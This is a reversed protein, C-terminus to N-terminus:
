EKPLLLEAGKAMGFADLHATRTRAPDVWHYHFPEGPHTIVGEAAGPAYFGVVEGDIRDAAMDEQEAMAHGGGHGGGHAGGHAAGHGKFHPNAGRLVHMRVGILTGKLRIPLPRTVDFGAEKAKEVIFADLAPGALDSPLAIPERWANVRASALLTAHDQGPHKCDPCPRGYTVLLKGDIATIEGRLGAVAGVAETAGTAMVTQLRVKPRYDQAGVMAQFAGHVSLQFPGTVPTQPMAAHGGHTPKQAPTHTAGHGGHHQADAAWASMALMAAAIAFKGPTPM